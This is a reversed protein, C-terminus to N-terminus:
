KTQKRAEYLAGYWALTVSKIIRPALEKRVAKTLPITWGTKLFRDYLGLSAIDQAMSRYWSAVDQSTFDKIEEETPLALRFRLPMIATAVGWEFMGHSTM